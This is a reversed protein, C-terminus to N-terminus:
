HGKAKNRRSHLVVDVSVAAIIAAGYVAQLYQDPVGAITLVKRIALLGVTGILVGVVTGSGGRLAVGGVVVGAIIATELGFAVQGDVFPYYSAWMAGVAGALLGSITFAALTRRKAPIGILEAGAPNSGAFYTERGKATWWLIFGALAFVLIASLQVPSIGLIATKTMTLWDAPVQEPKVRDGSSIISLVGRYLALTGLTVVISPVGGYAIVAGNILGCLLGVALAVGIGLLIPADPVTRMTAASAYAALGLTSAVSLDINRTLIVLMQGIGVIGLMASYDALDHLNDGSYFNTNLLSLPAVVAALALLLGLERRGLAQRIWSLSRGWETDAARQPRAPGIVTPKKGSAPEAAANGTSRTSAHLGTAALGIDYQNAHERDFEAVLAGHKMVYIRDCAGLLEPMDSSIMLIAIGQASLERIIRHVEAKAQVDIGQTPEDLILLKPQTALWKALVVKQQNGGSLNGIPQDYGAFKLKMRALPGQVMALEAKTSILGWKTTKGVVPLTANDLITFDEVISQGRRDESVYAIGESIAHAASKITQEHGNLLIKGSTPREMGFVARAVETRGSGILGAMGVVEGARVSLDIDRFKGESSLGKLELVTDGLVAAAREYLDGLARGVMLKVIEEETVESTRCTDVFAGDRLVTLRDSIRFIEELRHGVFMMAVGQEKLREIVEFLRDVEATTLAATPEDLILVKAESVLARAIEVLQQESVRLSGVPMTVPRELGLQALVKQAESKMRGHDLLGTRSRLPQGAFVNEAISLDAFLGPHQHVVAVGHKHAELATSFHVDEGAIRVTGGDPHYVGGLMKVCTSKGAGNEGVLALVEGTFLQFSVDSVAVTSGFIKSVGALEAAAVPSYAAPQGKGGVAPAAQNTRSVDVIIDELFDRRGHLDLLLRIRM